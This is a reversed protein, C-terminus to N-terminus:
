RWIMHIKNKDKEGASRVRHIIVIIVAAIGTISTVCAAPIIFKKM